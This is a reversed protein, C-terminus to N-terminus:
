NKGLCSKRVRCLQGNDLHLDAWRHGFSDKQVCIVEGSLQSTKVRIRDNKQIDTM